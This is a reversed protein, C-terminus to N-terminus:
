NGSLDGDLLTAAPWQWASLVARSVRRESGGHRDVDGLPGREWHIRVARWKPLDHGYGRLRYVV